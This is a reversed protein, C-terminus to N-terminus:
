RLDEIDRLGAEFHQLQQPKTLGVRGRWWPRLAAEGAAGSPAKAALLAQLFAEANQANLGGFWDGDTSQGRSYVLVNGAYKHGGIHSTKLVSIAGGPGQRGAALEALRAALAPGIHGCRKDRRAHCCVFLTTGSVQQGQPVPEGALAAVVAAPLQELPLGTLRVGAPFVLADATGPAVRAPALSDFATVKVKGDVREGAAKIAANVAEIAPEKDVSEPWWAEGTASPDSGAPAALKVFVHANHPTVSGPEAASCQELIAPDCGACADTGGGLWRKVAGLM